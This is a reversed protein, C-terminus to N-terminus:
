FDVDSVMGLNISFTIQDVIVGTESDKIILHYDHHKDYPISKLVFPLKFTRDEPNDFERDGIVREENSIVNGKHDAMYMEVTRPIRKGAVKETQFFSLHFLSNTIKRSTNTLKIDVKQIATVGRQGTRKNKYSIVPVVIEQLSAGGHVFNVGSGQMKFRVSAHPVYVRLRQENKILSNLNINLLGMVDKNETSLMYRRKIELADFREKEIKDSEDLEDREYLFGHDATIIINMGSLDDRIVKVLDYLEKMAQEVGNFTYLETSAKDGVADITDHYLYILKKGKFYERRGAKNMAFVDQTNVAVSETEVSELIKRRNEIGATSKENALVQGKSDFDLSKHPLLSAMGLKTVSPIVSLMTDVECSGITESNLREALEVGVEYRLADSIVVFVREGKAIKPAVRDRYFDQQKSIGPLSWEETLERGVAQSWHSSMEGMFWDSYQNEVMVKLKKLLESNPEQDFAVYFKRYFTDMQHYSNVYRKYLDIACNESIRGNEQKYFQHMKVVYFLAEYMNKYEAYYHKARRLKILKIYEQYDELQTSLSNVIYIIIAKDFYPFTDVQKFIEVPMQHVLETLQIEQEVIAAYENFIKDDVKHHMWHDVFVLANTKSRDAIFDQLCSLHEEDITHSMATVTLHTFLTKLSKHEREYGYHLSVYEWFVNLDFFKTMQEIYKNETDNLTDLLVTRIMEEFNPTKTHCIVGMIGMKIGEESYSEIGYAKFKRLREKNNFFREYKKVVSRLSPDINLENLLLSVKDAYFTTSYLVTDMLWNDEVNLDVNTYILYHSSTDEEELLYKTYFNNQETLQHIKVDDLYFDGIEDSFELDKDFWFIIKRHEGVELPEQFAEVLRTKVQDLNM